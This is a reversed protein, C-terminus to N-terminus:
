YDTTVDLANALRRLADFSPKRPGNEFHAISSPPMDARTALEAQSWKRMERAARLREQFIESPTEEKSM